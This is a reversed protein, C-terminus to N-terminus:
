FPVCDGSEDIAPTTEAPKPNRATPKPAAGRDPPVDGSLWRIGDCAPYGGCGAFQKNNKSTRLRMQGGCKPCSMKAVREEAREGPAKTALMAKIDSVDKAISRLLDSDTM